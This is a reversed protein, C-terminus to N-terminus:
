DVQDVNVTNETRARSSVYQDDVYQTDISIQNGLRSVENEDIIAPASVVIDDLRHVKNEVSKVNM